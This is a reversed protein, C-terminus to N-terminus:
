SIDLEKKLEQIKLDIYKSDHFLKSKLRFWVSEFLLGMKNCLKRFHYKFKDKKTQNVIGTIGTLAFPSSQLASMIIFKNKM